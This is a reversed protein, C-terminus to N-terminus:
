VKKKGQYIENSLQTMKRRILQGNNIFNRVLTAFKTSDKNIYDICKVLVQPNMELEVEFTNHIQSRDTENAM